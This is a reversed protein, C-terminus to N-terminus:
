FPPTRVASDSSEYDYLLLPGGLLGGNWREFTAPPPAITAIGRLSNGDWSLYGPGGTTKKKPKSSGASQELQALQELQEVQEVQEVSLLLTESLPPAAATPTTKCCLM